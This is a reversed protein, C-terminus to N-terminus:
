PKAVPYRVSGRMRVKAAQEERIVLRCSSAAVHARLHLAGRGRAQALTSGDARLLALRVVLGYTARSRLSAELAGSATRFTRSWLRHRPTLTVSLAQRRYVASTRTSRKPVPPPPLLPPPPAASGGLALLTRYADVRGYVAGAMPEAGSELAQTVAATTASPAVSFALGAIGSVVPAASSTGLFYEYNGALGTTSNEGPAAVLAGANSFSYLQDNRDSAGVSVVSPLAAPYDLTASADNGAAAVVLSGRQSAYQAAAALALDDSLGGLSANIVRAGHDAAWVIGRAVDSDYGTGDAGLVKVPMVQCGWCYGAVGVGNDSRAAVIGAVGTGHGNDDLPQTDNNVFDYGPVLKGVLDPQGPDVGTDVVAVVVASGTTLDWARPAETVIPSWQTSWLPDNPVRLARVRGDLQASRVLPDARFAALSEQVRTPDIAVVDSRLEPLASLREAGLDRELVTARDWGAESYVVVVRADPVTAALV